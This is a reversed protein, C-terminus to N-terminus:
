SGTVAEWMEVPKNAERVVGGGLWITPNLGVDAMDDFVRDAVSREFTTVSRYRGLEKDLWQVRYPMPGAFLERALESM